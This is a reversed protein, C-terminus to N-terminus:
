GANKAPRQAALDGRCSEVDPHEGEPRDIRLDKGDVAGNGVNVRRIPRVVTFKDTFHRSVDEGRSAKEAIEEATAVRKSTKPM